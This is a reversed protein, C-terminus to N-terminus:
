SPVADNPLRSYIALDLREGTRAHWKVSRAVGEFSFGAKEAVRRSGINCPEARLEVREYGLEDFRWACLLNVARSAVGRGRAAPGVWYGIEIVGRDARDWFLVAQGIPEDTAVDAIALPTDEGHERWSAECSSILYTAHDITYPQPMQDLWRAIEHDNCMAILAAADPSRWLRLRIVDDFLEPAGDPRPFEIPVHKM